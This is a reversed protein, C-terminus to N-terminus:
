GFRCCSLPGLEKSPAASIRQRTETDSAIRGRYLFIKSTSSEKITRVPSRKGPWDGRIARGVIEDLAAEASRNFFRSQHKVSECFNSWTEHFELSDPINIEYRESTDDYWDFSGDKIVDYAYKTSLHSVIADAVEPECELMEQLLFSPSEGGERYFVRDSDSEFDPIEDATGVIQRYVDDVREALTTLDISKLAHGCFSCEAKEGGKRIESKLVEDGVCRHCVHTLATQPSQANPM